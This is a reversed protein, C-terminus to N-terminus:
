DLNSQQPRTQWAGEDAASSGLRSQRLATRVAGATFNTEAGMLSSPEIALEPRSGGGRAQGESLGHLGRQRRM